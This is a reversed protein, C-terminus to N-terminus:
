GQLAQLISLTFFSIFFALGMKELFTIKKYQIELEDDELERFNKNRIYNMASRYRTDGFQFNLKPMGMSLWLEKHHSEIRKLFLRVHLLYKIVGIIFIIALSFLTLNFFM